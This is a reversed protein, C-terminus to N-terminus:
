KGKKKDPTQTLLAAALSKVEKPTPKKDGSLVKSALTALKPSTQENKAM